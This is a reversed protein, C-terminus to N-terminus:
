TCLQAYTRHISVPTNPILMSLGILYVPMMEWDKLARWLLRPTVAQRNHM